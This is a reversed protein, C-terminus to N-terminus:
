ASERAAASRRAGHLSDMQRDKADLCPQCHDLGRRKEKLFGGWTGHDIPTDESSSPPAATREKPPRGPGGLQARLRDREADLEALRRRVEERGHEVTVAERLQTLATEAKEALKRVRAVNHAKGDAILLDAPDPQPTPPQGLMAGIQARGPGLDAVPRPGPAPAPALNPKRQARPIRGTPDLTWGNEGAVRLCDGRNWGRERGASAITDIPNGLLFLDAIKADRTLTNPATM